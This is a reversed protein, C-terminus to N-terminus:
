LVLQRQSLTLFQKFYKTFSPDMMTFTAKALFFVQIMLKYSKLNMKLCFM